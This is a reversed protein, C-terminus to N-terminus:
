HITPGPISDCGGEQRYVRTTISEGGIILDAEAIEMTGSFHDGENTWQFVEPDSISATGPCQEALLFAPWTAFLLICIRIINKMKTTGQQCFSLQNYDGEWSCSDKLM